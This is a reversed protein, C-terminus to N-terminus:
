LLQYIDVPSSRGRVTVSGVPEAAVRGCLAEYTRACMLVQGPGAVSELRAALNAVDGVATYDMRTLTGINGVVAEGSAMGVGIPLRVSDGRDSATTQRCSAERIAIAARAARLAHDKQPVPAGFVAMVGDGTFKDLTGGERFIAETIMSLHANLVDVVREPSEREAFATFGRLDVFMVTVDLRRGGLSVEERARLVEDVVAPSLYRSFTARVRAKENEAVIFSTALQRALGVASVGILPAPDVWVNARSFLVFSLLAALVGSACSIAAARAPHLGRFVATLIVAVGIYLLALLSEPVGKVMRGELIAQVTNAHVEVGPVPNGASSLPTFYFDHLGQALVGILVIKGEFEGPTFEGDLVRYCPVTKYGPGGPAGSSYKVFVRGTSDLPVRVPGVRLGSRSFSVASSPLGLYLRVLELDMSYFPRGEDIIVPLHRRLIGDPDPVAVVSGVLSSRALEPYPLKRQGTAHFVRSGRPLVKSETYFPFVARGALAAAVALAQDAVPDTSVEPMLIDIGIARAKEKALIGLLRSYYSRPWPWAGLRSLSEDDIAIIVIDPMPGAGPALRHYLDYAAFEFREGLSTVHTAAAVTGIVIGAAM